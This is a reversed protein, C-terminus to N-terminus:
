SPVPQETGREALVVCNRGRAKAEYLAADAALLLDAVEIGDTPSCAVGVSVSMPEVEADGTVAAIRLENVRSRLREAVILAETEGAEPLAVVFEEGGFRGVSDFERVGSQLCRGVHRLVDDGVLHGFRDNVRKFRDLDLILVSAPRHNRHARALERRTIEEWALANLLETKPDRSAAAELERVQAARQVAIMPPLALVCLWPEYLAALAVLGGLFLVALEDLNDHLGGLLQRGRVGGLFQGIVDLARVTVGFLLV